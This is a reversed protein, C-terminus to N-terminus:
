KVIFVEKCRWYKLWQGWEEETGICQSYCASGPRQINTTSRRKRLIAPLLTVTVPRYSKPYTKEKKEGQIFAEASREEMSKSTRKTQKIIEM